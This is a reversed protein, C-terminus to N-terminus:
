NTKYIKDLKKVVDEVIKNFLDKFIINIKDIEESKKLIDTATIKSVM